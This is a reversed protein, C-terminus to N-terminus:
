ARRAQHYSRLMDTGIGVVDALGRRSANYEIACETWLQGIVAWDEEPWERGFKAKPWAWLADRADPPMTVPVHVVYYLEGLKALILGGVYGVIAGGVAGFAIVPWARKDPPAKIYALTGGLMAGVAAGWLAADRLPPDNHLAEQAAVYKQVAPAVLHFKARMRAQFAREKAEVEAKMAQVNALINASIGEGASLMMSELSAIESPSSGRSHHAEVAPQPRAPVPPAIGNVVSAAPPEFAPHERSASWQIDTRAGYDVGAERLEDDVTQPLPEPLPRIDSTDAM